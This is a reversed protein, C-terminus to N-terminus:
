HDGYLKAVEMAAILRLREAMCTESPDVKKDLDKLWSKYTGEAEARVQTCTNLLAPTYDHDKFQKSYM